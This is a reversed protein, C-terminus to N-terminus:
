LHQLIYNGKENDTAPRSAVVISEEQPINGDTFVPYEYQKLYNFDKNFM